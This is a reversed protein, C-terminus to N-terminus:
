TLSLINSSVSFEPRCIFIVKKQPPPFDFVTSLVVRKELQTVRGATVMGSLFIIWNSLLALHKWPAAILLRFALWLVFWEVWRKTIYKEALQVPQFLVPLLHQHHVGPIQPTGQQLVSSTLLLHLDAQAQPQCMVALFVLHEPCWQQTVWCM